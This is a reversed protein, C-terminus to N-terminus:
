QGAAPTGTITIDYESLCTNMADIRGVLLMEM